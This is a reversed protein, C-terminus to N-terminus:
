APHLPDNVEAILAVGTGSRAGEARLSDLMSRLLFFGRGREDDLDPVDDIPSMLERLVAPDGGGEDDVQLRWGQGRCELWLQMHAGGEWESADLAGRGGGHDVANTLLEGAVFELRDLAETTLGARSACSRVRARAILVGGHHAPVMLHLRGHVSLPDPDHPADSEV